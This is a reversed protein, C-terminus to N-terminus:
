VAVDLKFWPHPNYNEFYVDASKFDDIDLVDSNLLLTPLQRPERTLQAELKEIHNLYIHADGLSVILDGVNYGSVQAIMHTLLAYSAINFPLGIGIDCSRMYFLCSLKRDHSVFFQFMLHCPPLSMQNLDGVNWASIVHRRSYPDTKLNKILNRIQDIQGSWSRWQYGYIKGVDGNDDAWSDWIRVGKSQLNKINTSGSLFWILEEVIAKTNLKKTTLLPFGNKLSIRLNYGFMSVTGVGTRDNRKIGNNIVDKVLNKYLFDVHSVTPDNGRDNRNFENKNKM